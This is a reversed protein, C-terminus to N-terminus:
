ANLAGILQILLVLCAVIAFGGLGTVVVSILDIKM